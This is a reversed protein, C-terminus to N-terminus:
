QADYLNFTAADYSDGFKGSGNISVVCGNTSDDGTIFILDKDIVNQVPHYKIWIIISDSAPVVLATDSLTYVNKLNHLEINISQENENILYFSTSDTTNTYIQPFEIAETSVRVQAVSNISIFIIVLLFIKNM